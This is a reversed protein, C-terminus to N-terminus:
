FHLPSMETLAGFCAHTLSTMEAFLEEDILQCLSCRVCRVKKM